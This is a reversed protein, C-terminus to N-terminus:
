TEQVSDKKRYDKPLFYLIATTFFMVFLSEGIFSDWYKAVVRDLHAADLFVWYGNEGM